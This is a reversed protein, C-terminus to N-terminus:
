SSLIPKFSGCWGTPEVEPQKYAMFGTSGDYIVQPPDRRCELSKAKTLAVHNCNKCVNVQEEEVRIPISKKRPAM